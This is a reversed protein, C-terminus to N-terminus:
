TAVARGSNWRKEYAAKVSLTARNDADIFRNMVGECDSQTHANRSFRHTEGMVEVTANLAAGFEDLDLLTALSAVRYLLIRNIGYEDLAVKIAANHRAEDPDTNRMEATVLATKWQSFEGLLKMASASYKLYDEHLLNLMELEKNRRAIAVDREGQLEHQRDIQRRQSRQGLHFLLVGAFLSILVKLIELGVNSQQPVM